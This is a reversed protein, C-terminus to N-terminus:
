KEHFILINLLINEYFTTNKQKIVLTKYNEIYQYTM